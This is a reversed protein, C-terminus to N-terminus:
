AVGPMLTLQTQVWYMKTCIGTFKNNIFKNNM